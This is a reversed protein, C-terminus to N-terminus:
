AARQYENVLGGFVRRRRIKPTALDAIVAPAMEAAGPPRLNRARHPRHEHDHLAYEDLVVPRHRRRQVLHGGEVFARISTVM